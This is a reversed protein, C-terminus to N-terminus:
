DSMLTNKRCNYISREQFFSVPRAKVKPAKVLGPGAKQIVKMAHTYDKWHLTDLPLNTTNYNSPSILFDSGQAIATYSMERESWYQNKREPGRFRTFWLENYTGVWFGMEKGYTTTLNRLQAITYHM